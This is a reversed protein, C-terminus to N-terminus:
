LCLVHIIFAPDITTTNKNVFNVMPSDITQKNVQCGQKGYPM